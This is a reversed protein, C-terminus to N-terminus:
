STICIRDRGWCIFAKCTLSPSFSSSFYYFSSLFFCVIFSLLRYFLNQLSLSVVLLFSPHSPHHSLSNRLWHGLGLGLVQASVQVGAWVLPEVVAEKLGTHHWEGKGQSCCLAMTNLQKIMSKMELLVCFIWMCSHPPALAPMLVTKERLSESYLSSAPLLSVDKKSRVDKFTLLFPSTLSKTIPHM